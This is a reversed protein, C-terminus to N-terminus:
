KINISSLLKLFKKRTITVYSLDGFGINRRIKIDYREWSLKDKKLWWNIKTIQTRITKKIEIINM